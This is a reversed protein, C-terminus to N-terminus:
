SKQWFGASVQWSPCHAIKFGSGGAGTLDELRLLSWLGLDGLYAM